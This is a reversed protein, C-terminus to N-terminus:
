YIKTIRAGQFYHSLIEECTKGRRAMGCAGAQCMGVGHGWGGGYFVFRSPRGQADHFVEVIFMSSRLGGFAKRIALEKNIVRTSKEGVITLADIHGSPLRTTVIIKQIAGISANADFMANLQAASYLRTWRFNSTTAYEAINCLIGEPTEKCWQQLAYPSLPFALAKEDLGDFIGHLYPFAKADGFINDQTHGGCNSSYVADIPEDHYTLVLGRTEDVAQTTADTEREVGSYAQCHVEACFDFGQAKHRGRKKIAESRAAIAQAKLAEKPWHFSMESPVVSYLYEELSLRNIVTIGKGAGNIEIGGRYSRDSENSWFNGKGVHVGFLTVTARRDLPEIRIRTDKFVDKKRGRSLVLAGAKDKSFTCHQGEPVTLATGPATIRLEGPCKFSVSEANEILGVAVFVMDQTPEFPKVFVAQAKRLARIRQAERELYKKGLTSRILNIKEQADARSPEVSAIKKYSALAAPLDHTKLYLAGLPEYLAYMSSDYRLAAKYEDIAKYYKKQREYIAGLACHATINKEDYFLIKEYYRQARVDDGLGSYSVALIECADKNRSNRSLLEEGASIARTFDGKLCYLRALLGLLADDGAYYARAEELVAVGRPYDQLDKFIVGLNLYADKDHSEKALQTYHNIASTFDGRNYADAIRTDSAGYAFPLSIHACWVACVLVVAIIHRIFAVDGGNRNKHADIKFFRPADDSGVIRRACHSCPLVNSL